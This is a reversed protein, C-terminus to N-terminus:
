LYASRTSDLNIHTNKIFYLLVESWTSGGNRSIYTNTEDYNYSLHVNINGNALILGPSSKPSYIRPFLSDPGHLQLACNKRNNLCDDSYKPSKLDKKPLLSWSGGNNFTIYTQIYENYSKEREELVLSNATDFRDNM